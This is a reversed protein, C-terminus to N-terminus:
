AGNALVAAIEEEDMVPLFNSFLEPRFPEKCQKRASRQKNDAYWATCAGATCTSKICTLLRTTSIEGEM